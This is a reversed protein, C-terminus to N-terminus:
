AELACAQRLPASRRSSSSARASATTSLLKQDGNEGLLRQLRDPLLDLGALPQVELVAERDELGVVQKREALEGVERPAHAPSRVLHEEDLVEIDVLRVDAAHFALEAGERRRLLLHVRVREGGLLEDVVHEALPLRRREGPERVLLHQALEPVAPEPRKGSAPRLDEGLPDPPEDSWPLLMRVDPEVDVVGGVLESDRGVARDEVSMDLRVLLADVVQDPEALLLVARAAEEGEDREREM